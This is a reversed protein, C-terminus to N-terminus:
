TLKLPLHVCQCDSYSQNYKLDSDLNVCKYQQFIFWIKILALPTPM